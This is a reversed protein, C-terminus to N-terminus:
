PEQRTGGFYQRSLRPGQGDDASSDYENLLFNSAQQITLKPTQTSDMKRPPYLLTATGLFFCYIKNILHRM